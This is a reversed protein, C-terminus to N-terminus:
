PASTHEWADTHGLTFWGWPERCRGQLLQKHEEGPKELETM